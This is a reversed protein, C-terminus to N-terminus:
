ARPGNEPGRWNRRQVVALLAAHGARRSFGRHLSAGGGAAVALRQAVPFGCGIRALVQELADALLGKRDGGHFVWLKVQKVSLTLAM